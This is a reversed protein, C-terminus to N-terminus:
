ALDRSRFHAFAGGVVAALLGALVLASHWWHITDPGSGGVTLVLRGNMWAALYSSLMWWSDREIQIIEMVIRAGLEWVVFYAAAIGVATSTHRGATALAFGIASVVIALVVGRLSVLALEGWFQASQDGPLGMVQALSWFAGIYLLTAAVALVTVAALLVGLKVGLVHLRQPRWLLLNTMGGSTLEAGVFSAGVLFGFLALFASLFYMLGRISDTFLFVGSLYDSVRVRDPSLDRCDNFRYRQRLLDPADAQKSQVCLDFEMHLTARTRAAQREATAVEVETPRHTSALVTALTVGFAALLVVVMVQAFRRSVLRLAEARILNRIVAADGRRAATGM